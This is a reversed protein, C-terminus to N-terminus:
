LLVDHLILKSRKKSTSLILVLIQLVLKLDITTRTMEMKTIQACLIDLNLDFDFKM